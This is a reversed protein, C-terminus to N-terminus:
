AEETKGYYVPDGSERVKQLYAAGLLVYAREDDPTQRLREQLTEIQNDASSSAQRDAVAADYNALHNAQAQHVYAMYVYQLGFLIVGVVAIRIGVNTLPRRWWQLYTMMADDKIEYQTM